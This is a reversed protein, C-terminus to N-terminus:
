RRARAAIIAASVETIQEIGMCRHTGVGFPLGEAAHPDNRAASATSALVRGAALRVPKSGGPVQRRTATDRVVGPLPPRRALAARYARAAEIRSTLRDTPLAAIVSALASSGLTLPGVTLAVVDGAAQQEDAGGAFLHAVVTGAPASAAARIIAARQAASAEVAEAHVTADARGKPTAPNFFIARTVLRSTAHLDAGMGPVGFWHEVWRELCTDVDSTGSEALAAAAEVGDAHAGATAHLTRDIRARARLHESGDLSLPFAGLGLQASVPGYPVTIADLALASELTAHRCIADDFGTLQRFPWRLWGRLTGPRGAFALLRTTADTV